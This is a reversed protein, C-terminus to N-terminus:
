SRRAPPVPARRPLAGPAAAPGKPATKAPAASAPAALAAPAAQAPAASAPAVSATPAASAPATSVPAEGGSWGASMPREKRMKSTIKTITNGTNLDPKEFSDEYVEAIFQTHKFGDSDFGGDAEIAVGCADLMNRVRGAANPSLSLWHKKSSGNYQDTDAGGIVTLDFELQPHKDAAKAPLIVCDEIEFAFEGPPLINAEGDWASTKNLDTDPIQVKPM